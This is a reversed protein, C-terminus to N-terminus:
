AGSGMQVRERERAGPALDNNMPTQGVCFNALSAAPRGNSGGAQVRNAIALYLTPELAVRPAPTAAKGAQKSPMACQVRSDSWLMLFRCDRYVWALTLYVCSAHMRNDCLRAHPLVGAAALKKGSHGGTRESTTSMRTTSM